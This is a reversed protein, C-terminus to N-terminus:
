LVGLIKLETKMLLEKKIEPYDKCFMDWKMKADDRFYGKIEVITGDELKFDPVYTMNNTLIFIPEYQWKINQKDLWTAYKVEWSSRMKINKYEFKGCYNKNQKATALSLKARTESSHSKGLLPHTGGNKIYSSISMKNKSEQTVVKGNHTLSSACSKCLGSGYRKKIQYGRDKKCNSCSMKYLKRSCKNEQSIIFDNLYIM